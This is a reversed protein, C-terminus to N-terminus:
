VIKLQIKFQGAITVSTFYPKKDTPIHNESEKIFMTTHNPQFEEKFMEQLFNDYKEDERIEFTITREGGYEGNVIPPFLKRIFDLFETKTINM